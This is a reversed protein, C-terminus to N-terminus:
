RPRAMFRAGEGYSALSARDACPADRFGHRAWVEGTGPIAVLTARPLPAAALLARLVAAAHGAGRAAEALAIDHIHWAVPAPPLAGLLTDLAPPAAGTWPHSVAYGLLAAGTALVRCGAPALALREAFVAPSEPHHLHIRDALAQVAPLDAATM